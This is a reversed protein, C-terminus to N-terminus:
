RNTKPICIPSKDRADALHLLQSESMIKRIRVKALKIALKWSKEPIGTVKVDQVPKGNLDTKTGLWLSTAGLAEWRASQSVRGDLVMLCLEKGDFYLHGRSGPIIRDGCEDVKIKLRFQDSFTKINM